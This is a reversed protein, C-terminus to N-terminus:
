IGFQAMPAQQTTQYHVVILGTEVGTRKHKADM